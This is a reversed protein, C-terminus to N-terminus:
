TKRKRARVTRGQGEIPLGMEWGAQRKLARADEMGSVRATHPGTHGLQRGCRIHHFKANLRIGCRRFPETTERHMNPM